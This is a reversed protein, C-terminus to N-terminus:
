PSFQSNVVFAVLLSTLILFAYFFLVNSVAASELFRTRNKFYLDFGSNLKRTRNAILDQIPFNGFDDKEFAEQLTHGNFGIQSDTFKEIAGLRAMHRRQYSKFLADMTWFTCIAPISALIIIPAKEKAGFAVLASWATISWGKIQFSLNDFRSIETHLQDIEKELLSKQFEFFDKKNKM